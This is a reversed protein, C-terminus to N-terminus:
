STLVEPWEPVYNNSWFWHELLPWFGRRYDHQWNPNKHFKFQGCDTTSIYLNATEINMQPDEYVPAAYASLQLRHEPWSGKEPLKRTSKFDVILCAKGKKGIWDVTGAYGAGVKVTETEVSDWTDIGKLYLFAPEIWPRLDDHIREGRWLAEMGNHIDRGLNSALRAEEDQVRETHLVREVYDDLGEKEKMPSTLVAMVVQRAKWEELEPKHRLRLVNTVSPFLNLKKADSLNTPRETGTTKGIITHMPKGDSTYWHSDETRTIKSVNM